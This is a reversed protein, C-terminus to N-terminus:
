NGTPFITKGNYKCPLVPIKVSKPCNVEVKLFGFFDDLNFDSKIIFKRILDFPMPKCMNHPYLSNVDYYKINFAKMQYYDTAGGFYANRLFTDDRRKLIPINVKLFNKRFIKLSLTSTSLISTIDVKYNNLYMEQLKILCNFLADSDQGQGPLSLSYIKFEELLSSNKFLTLNHFESKYKSSKGPLSLMNCLDDLSVPFIRYSDKWIIKIKKITLTIQIFKNHSDILCSVQNPEFKNSLAKFIFLGYFEGLNHVFITNKPSSGGCNVLIFDFFQNWLEDLALDLNKMLKVPDIIFIKSNNKTRISISIPVEKNKKDHPDKFDMTEIVMASFPKSEAGINIIKSFSKKPKIPTIYNLYKNNANEKKLNNTSYFRNSPLSRNPASLPSTNKLKINSLVIIEEGTLANKIIKIKKNALLDM